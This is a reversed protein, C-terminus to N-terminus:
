IGSVNRTRDWRFITMKSEGGGFFGRGPRSGRLREGIPSGRGGQFDSDPGPFLIAQGGGPGRRSLGPLVAEPLEFDAVKEWQFSADANRIARQVLRESGIWYVDNSGAWETLDSKVLNMREEPSLNSYRAQGAELKERQMPSPRNSDSEGGGSLFRDMAQRRRGSVFTDDALKWKGAYDLWPSLQRGVVVVSGDPIRESIAAFAEANRKTMSESRALQAVSQPLGTALQLLILASMLLWSPTPMTKNIRSVFWVGAFIILPVLPLFFRLSGSGDRGGAWYYAMYALTLPLISGVLLYAHHRTYKRFFLWVMGLFAPIFMVGWGSSMLQELYNVVNSQFYGLGFGTQEDTLSYGTKWFAGFALQNRILLFLIPISAGLVSLGIGILSRSGESKYYSFLFAAVGIGVLAEPYRVLPVFGFLLGSFFASVLSGKSAWLQLLAVGGMLAVMTLTHSDANLARSNLVPNLALLTAAGLAYWDGLWPRCLFFLLLLSLSTLVPNVWLAAIPGGMKHVIALVMSFGPPYRSFFREDDTVLWHVGIAQIPSQAEFSTKGHEALLKAQYYYGHADPSAFAPEFRMAILSFHSVVLLLLLIYPTTKKEM